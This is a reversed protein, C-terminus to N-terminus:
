DLFIVVIFHSSWLSSKWLYMSSSLFIPVQLSFATNLFIQHGPIPARLRWKKALTKREFERQKREWKWVREYLDWFHAWLFWCSWCGKMIYGRRRLSEFRGKERSMSLSLQSSESTRFSLFWSKRLPFLDHHFLCPPLGFGYIFFQGKERSFVGM